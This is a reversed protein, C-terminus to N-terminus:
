KVYENNFKRQLIKKLQDWDPENDVAKNHPWVKPDIEEKAIVSCNLMESFDKYEVLDNIRKANRSFFEFEPSNSHQIFDSIFRIADIKMLSDAPLKLLYGDMYTRAVKYAVDSFGLGKATRALYEMRRYDREGEEFKRLLPFYQKLSNMANKGLVLFSSPDLAGRGMHVIEGKADFFLFTPVASITYKKKLYEVDKRWNKIRENDGMTTDLQLKIAIFKQNIFETVSSDQFTVKDM